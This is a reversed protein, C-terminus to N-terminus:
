PMIYCRLVFWQKLKLSRISFLIEADGMLKLYSNAESRIVLFRQGKQLVFTKCKLSLSFIKYLRKKKEDKDGVEYWSKRFTVMRSTKPKGKNQEGVVCM